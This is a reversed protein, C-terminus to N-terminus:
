LVGPAPADILYHSNSFGVLVPIREFRCLLLKVCVNSMCTSPERLWSSSCITAKRPLFASVRDHAMAAQIGLPVLGVHVIHTFNNNYRKRHKYAKAVTVVQKISRGRPYELKGIVGQLQCTGLRCVKSFCVM